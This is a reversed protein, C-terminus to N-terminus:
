VNKYQKLINVRKIKEKKWILDMHMHKQQILQPYEKIMM